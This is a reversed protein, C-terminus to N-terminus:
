NAARREIYDLADEYQEQLEPREELYGAAATLRAIQGVDEIENVLAVLEADIADHQRINDNTKDGNTTNSVGGENAGNDNSAHNEGAHDPTSSGWWISISVAVLVLAAAAVFWGVGRAGIFGARRVEEQQKVFETGSSPSTAMATAREQWFSTALSLSLQLQAMQAQCDTCLELHVRVANAQDDSLEGDALAILDDAYAECTKM